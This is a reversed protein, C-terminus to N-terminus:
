STEGTIHQPEITQTRMRKVLEKARSGVQTYWLSLEMNQAAKVYNKAKIYALTNKFTLLSKLGMNFAMNILVTKTVFSGDVYGPLKEKLRANQELILGELMREAPVKQIRSDPTVGNTFGYGYTWPAGDSDKVGKIKALLARAPVTGWPFEKSVPYKQALESLPDPYAYERFGEHRDLDKKVQLMLKTDATHLYPINM